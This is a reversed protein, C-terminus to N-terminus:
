KVEVSQLDQAIVDMLIDYDDLPEGSFEVLGTKEYYKKVKKYLKPYKVDLFIEKNAASRLVNLEKKFKTTLNM